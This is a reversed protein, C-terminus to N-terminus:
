PAGSEAVGTRLPRSITARPDLLTKVALRQGESMPRLVKDVLDTMPEVRPAVLHWLGRGRAVLEVARPFDIERVLANTGILIKEELTVAALDIEVPAQQIGVLVIRCGRPSIGLASLVGSRSGSVEFVVRLEADGVAERVHHQDGAGGTVLVTARAGLRGALTLRDPDMDTAVVDAGSQALAFVLFAGIGGVGQVLVTQGAVEGARSVNHVAISMPQCLAAEDLTLRIEDVALCNEAPTAVYEALAGARHLGVGAYQMCQNSQGRGCAACRGCAVSGCSAVRRGLWSEDVAEGVAVVTGSFEHGPTIPGVHGTAPHPADIPHLHPGHAWEAVDSGCVGVAGVELLLEGPGPRPRPVDEFRIDRKGHYVAAHMHRTM